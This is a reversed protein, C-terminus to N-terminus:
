SCTLERAENYMIFKFLRRHNQVLFSYVPTLQSIHPNMTKSAWDM